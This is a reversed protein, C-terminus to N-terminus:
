VHYRNTWHFFVLWGHLAVLAPPVLWLALAAARSLTDSTDVKLIARWGSQLTWGVALALLVARVAPLWDLNAGEGRLYLATDATLGLFLAIGALPMLARALQRWDARLLRAAGRLALWTAGGALLAGGALWLLLSAADLWVFQTEHLPWRALWAEALTQRLAVFAPNLTWQFWAPVAGLLCFVLLLAAPTRLAGDADDIRAAIGCARPALLLALAAVPLLLGRLLYQLVLALRDHWQAAAPVAARLALRPAQGDPPTLCLNPDVFSASGWGDSLLRAEPHPAPLVALLAFLLLPLLLWNAPWTNDM